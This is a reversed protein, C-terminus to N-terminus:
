KVADILQQIFQSHKLADSVSSIPTNNQRVNDHFALLENRFAEEYSVTVRKEWALEGEGGQVIVPSPFNRYYPSPFQLMVREFNGFFAYEERYDVLNSLFHWDLTVQLDGSYEVLAHFSFGERWLDAHIVRKPEGLFGYLTYIQHIISSCIIGYGLRLRNDEKRAGLAEDVLAGTEGAAFAALQMELQHEWTGPDVHGEIITGGGRRIRHPSLGLENVPHLVTIRLFGLDRMQRVQEKAYAFAPDYLKHYALQVIRDGRAARAAVEEAERLNWTLPKEVFVHKNANLAAITSDRHSGGHCIVVADVDDRALLERYDTYRSSVAYRDGVANLTGRDVDSLAVLSFREEYEVLHPIHMIQAIAGCGIVGVRLPDPM